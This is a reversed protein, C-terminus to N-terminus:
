ISNKIAIMSCFNLCQFWLSPNSFGAEKFRQFHAPVTEPVLVNEIASRKQAVELDSYGQRKKFQHHADIFLQNLNEDEIQIKESVLLVAGPRMGEYIKSILALRQGIPVFQLTFNLVVMSANEIAIDRIDALVLEIIDAEKQGNLLSKFESIMAESNDVAIVSCDLPLENCMSLTSAGLSCGLDYCNSGPQASRAALIGTMAVVSEYGPVSRQIMDPFVSVVRQDFEFGSIRGLPLPTSFLDDRSM